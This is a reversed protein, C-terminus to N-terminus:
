ILNVHTRLHIELRSKSSYDKECGAFHCRFPRLERMFNAEASASAQAGAGQNGLQMGTKIQFEPNFHIFNEAIESINQHKQESFETM